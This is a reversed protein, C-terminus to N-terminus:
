EAKKSKKEKKTETVEELEEDSPKITLLIIMLILMVGAISFLIVSVINNKLWQTEGTLRDVTAEVEIVKYAAIAEGPLEADKFVGFM